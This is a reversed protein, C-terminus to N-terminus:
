RKRVLRQAEKLLFDPETFPQPGVDMWRVRGAGDILVTGHLPMGEFDDFARYARFATRGADSLVPFPFKGDIDGAKLTAPTDTGIAILDIGAAAFKRAKPGFANLQDVCHVCGIGLYFIVVVPKGRYDSLRVTRGDADPLAFEAAAWPQWRVPGLGDVPPRSGIDAAVVPARWDAPWGFSTALSSLRALPPDDLEATGALTRLEEFAAQAEMVRGVRRLLDVRNALRCVRGGSDRTLEVVRAANGDVAHATALVEPALDGAKAFWDLAAKAGGNTLAVHGRLEAVSQEATRVTDAKGRLGTGSKDSAPRRVLWETALVDVAFAAPSVPMAGAWAASVVTAMHNPGYAQEWGSAFDRRAEDALDTLRALRDIAGGRDGRAM